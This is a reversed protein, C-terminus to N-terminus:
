QQLVEIIKDKIEEESLPKNTYLACNGVFDHNNLYKFEVKYGKMIPKKDMVGIFSREEYMKNIDTIFIKDKQMVIGGKSTTIIGTTKQKVM